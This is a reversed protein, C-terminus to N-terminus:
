KGGETQGRNGSRGKAREEAEKAAAIEQEGKTADSDLSEREARMIANQLDLKRADRLAMRVAPWDRRDRASRAQELYAVVKAEREAMAAKEAKLQKAEDIQTLLIAAGANEPDLGQVAKLVATAEDFEESALLERARELKTQVETIIPVPTPKAVPAPSQVVTGRGQTARDPMTMFVGAIVVIVAVATIPFWTKSKSKSPSSAPKEIAIRSSREPRAPAPVSEAVPSPAVVLLAPEIEL